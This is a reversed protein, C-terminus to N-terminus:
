IITSANTDTIKQIESDTLRNQKENKGVNQLLALPNKHM